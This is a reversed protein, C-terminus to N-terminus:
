LMNVPNIDISVDAGKDKGTGCEDAIRTFANVLWPLSKCKVVIRWRFLGQIRYLPARKPATVIVENCKEEVLKALMKYIELSKSYSLKDKASSTIIVGIHCFPPYGLKERVM